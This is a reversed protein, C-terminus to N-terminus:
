NKKTSVAQKTKQRAIVFFVLSILVMLLIIIAAAVIFRSITKRPKLQNYYFLFFSWCLLSYYFLNAINILIFFNQDVKVAQEDKYTIMREIEAWLQPEAQLTFTIFFLSHYLLCGTVIFFFPDRFINHYEVTLSDYLYIMSSFIIMLNYAKMSDTHFVYLSELITLEFLTYILVVIGLILVLVKKSRNVFVSYFAFSWTMIDLISFINYLLNRSVLGNTAFVLVCGETLVSIVLLLVLVKLRNPKIYKFTILGLLTCVSQLIFPIYNNM